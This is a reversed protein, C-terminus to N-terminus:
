DAGPGSADVDTVLEGREWKAELTYTVDDGEFEVQVRKLDEDVDELLFTPAPAVADLRVQGPLYSVVISGGASTVVIQTWAETAATTTTTAVTTTTTTPATTTIPATTTTTQLTTTPATSTTTAASTTTPASTTETTATTIPPRTTTPVTATANSGGTSSGESSIAPNEPSFDEDSARLRPVFRDITIELADDVLGISYSLGSESSVFTGQVFRGITREITATWGPSPLASVIHISDGSRGIVLEGASEIQVSKISRDAISDAKAVSTAHGEATSRQDAAPSMMRTTTTAISKDINSNGALAFGTALLALLVAGIGFLVRYKM